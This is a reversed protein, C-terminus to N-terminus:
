GGGEEIMRDKKEQKKTAKKSMKPTFTKM